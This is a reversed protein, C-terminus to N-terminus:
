RAAARTTSLLGFMVAGVGGLLYLYNVGAASFVVDGNAGVGVLVMQALVWGITCLLPGLPGGTARHVGRVAAYLAALVVALTILALAQGVLGTMWLWGLWGAYVGGVVGTGLAALFLLTYAAIGVALRAPGAGSPGASPGTSTSSASM